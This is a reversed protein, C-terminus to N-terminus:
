KFKECLFGLFLLYDFVVLSYFLVFVIFLALHDDFCKQVSQKPQVKTTSEALRKSYSTNRQLATVGATNEATRKTHEAHLQQSILQKTVVIVEANQQFM